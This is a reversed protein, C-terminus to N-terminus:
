LMVGEENSGLHSGKVVGVVSSVDGCTTGEMRRGERWIDMAAQIVVNLGVGRVGLVCMIKSIAALVQAM